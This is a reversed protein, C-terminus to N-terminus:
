LEIERPTDGTREIEVGSDRLPSAAFFEALTGSTAARFIVAPEGYRVEPLRLEELQGQLIPYIRLLREYEEPTVPLGARALVQDVAEKVRTPDMDTM